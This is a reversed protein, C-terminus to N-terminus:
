NLKTEFWFVDAISNHIVKYKVLCTYAVWGGTYSLFNRPTFLVVSETSHIYNTPKTNM